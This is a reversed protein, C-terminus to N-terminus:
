ILGFLKSIRIYEKFALNKLGADTPFGKFNKISYSSFNILISILSKLLEKCFIKAEEKKNIGSLATIIITRLNVGEKCSPPYSEIIPYLYEICFNYEGKILALEAKEVVQKYSDM